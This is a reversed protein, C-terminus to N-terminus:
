VEWIAVIYTKDNEVRLGYIDHHKLQKVLAKYNKKNLARKEGSRIVFTGFIRKSECWADKKGILKNVFKKNVKTLKWSGYVSFPVKSVNKLIFKGDKRETVSVIPTCKSLNVKEM